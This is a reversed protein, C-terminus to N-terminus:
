KTRMGFVFGAGHPLSKGSGAEVLAARKARCVPCTMLKSSMAFLPEDREGCLAVNINPGNRMHRLPTM